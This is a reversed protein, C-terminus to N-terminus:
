LYIDDQYFGTAPFLRALLNQLKGEWRWLIAVSSDESNAVVIDQFGDKSFDAVEVM